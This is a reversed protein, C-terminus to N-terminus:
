INRLPVKVAGARELSFTGVTVHVENGDAHEPIWEAQVWVFQNETLDEFVVTQRCTSNVANKKEKRQETKKQYTKPHASSKHKKKGGWFVIVAVAALFYHVHDGVAVDPEAHLLLVRQKPHIPM